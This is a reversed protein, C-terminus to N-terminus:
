RAQRVTGVLITGDDVLLQVVDAATTKQVGAAEALRRVPANALEPRALLAFFVQYSRAGLGQRSRPHQARRGQVHAIYEDGLALHCNGALDMFAVHSTALLAGVPQSVYPSFLIWQENRGQRRAAVNIAVPRTLPTTKLEVMLDRRGTPTHLSVVADADRRARLDVSKVFPLTRLLDLYPAVDRAIPNM